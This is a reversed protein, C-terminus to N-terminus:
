RGARAATCAAGSGWPARAALLHVLLPHRAAGRRPQLRHPDVEGAVPEARRRATRSRAPGPSRPPASTSRRTGGTSSAAPAVDLPGVLPPDVEVRHGLARRVPDARDGADDVLHEVLQPRDAPRLRRAAPAEVDVHADRGLVAEGVHAPRRQGEGALDLPPRRRRSWWRTACPGRGPRGTRRSCGSRGRGCSPPPRSPAPGVRRGRHRRRDRPVLDVGDLGLVARHGGDGRRKASSPSRWAPMSSAGNAM